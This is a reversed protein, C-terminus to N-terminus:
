LRSVGQIYIYISHPHPSFKTPHTDPTQVWIQKTAYALPRQSRSAAASSTIEASFGRYDHAHLGYSKNKNHGIVLFIMSLTMRTDPFRKVRTSSSPWKELHPRSYGSIKERKRRLSYAFKTLRKGAPCWIFCVTVARKYSSNHTMRVASQRPIAFLTM